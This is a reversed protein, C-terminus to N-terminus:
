ICDRQYSFLDHVMALAIRNHSSTVVHARSAMENILLYITSWPRQGRALALTNLLHLLM